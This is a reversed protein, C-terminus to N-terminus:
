LNSYLYILVEDNGIFHLIFYSGKTQLVMIGELVVRAYLFAAIRV